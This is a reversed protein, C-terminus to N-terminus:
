EEEKKRWARRIVGRVNQYARKPWGEPPDTEDDEISELTEQLTDMWTFFQGGQGIRGCYGFYRGDDTVGQKTDIIDLYM